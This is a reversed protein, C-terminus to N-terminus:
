RLNRDPPYYWRQYRLNRSGEFGFDTRIAFSEDGDPTEIDFYSWHRAEDDYYQWADSRMPIRGRNGAADITTQILYSGDSIPFKEERPWPNEKCTQKIEAFKRDIKDGKTEKYNMRSKIKENLEPTSAMRMGNKLIITSGDMIAGELQIALLDPTPAPAAVEKKAPLQRMLKKPIRIGNAMIVTVGDTDLRAGAPLTVTTQAFGIQALLFFLLLSRM